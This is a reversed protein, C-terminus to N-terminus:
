DLPMRDERVAKILRAIEGAAHASTHILILRRMPMPNNSLHCHKCAFLVIFRHHNLRSAGNIWFIHSDCIVTM